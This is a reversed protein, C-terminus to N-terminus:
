EKFFKVATKGLPVVRKQKGKGKRVFLVKDTLDAHYVELGILEDLRIGTTYFTELIARDRIGTSLSLNPQKLLQKMEEQTLM